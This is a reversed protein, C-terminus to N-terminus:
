MIEITKDFNMSPYSLEFEEKTYEKSNLFFIDDISLVLVDDIKKILKKELKIMRNKLSM